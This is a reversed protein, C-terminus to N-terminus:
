IFFRNYADTSIHICSYTDLYAQTNLTLLRLLYRGGGRLAYWDVNIRNVRSVQDVSSCCLISKIVGRKCYSQWHYELICVGKLRRPLGWRGILDSTWTWPYLVSCTCACNSHRKKDVSGRHPLMIVRTLKYNIRKCSPASWERCGVFEDQSHTIIVQRNFNEVHRPTDKKKKQKTKYMIKIQIRSHTKMFDGLPNEYFWEIWLSLIIDM